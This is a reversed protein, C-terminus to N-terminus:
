YGGGGGSDGGGGDNDQAASPPGASEVPIDPLGCSAVALALASIWAVHAAKRDTHVRRKM